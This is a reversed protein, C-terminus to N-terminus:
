RQFGRMARSCGTPTNSIATVPFTIRYNADQAVRGGNGLATGLLQLAISDAIAFASAYLTHTLIFIRKM